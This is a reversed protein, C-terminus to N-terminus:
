YRFRRFFETNYVSKLDHICTVDDDQSDSCDHERILLFQAIAFPRLDAQWQFLRSTAM